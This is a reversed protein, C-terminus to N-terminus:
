AVHNDAAYQALSLQEETLSARVRDVEAAFFAPRAEGDLVPPAPKSCGHLASTTPARADPYSSARPDTPLPLSSTLDGAGLALEGDPHKCGYPGGRDVATVKGRDVATGGAM